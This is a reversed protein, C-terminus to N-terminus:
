RIWYDQRKCSPLDKRPLRSQIKDAAHKMGVDDEIGGRSSAARSAARSTVAWERRKSAPRTNSSHNTFLTPNPNPGATTLVRFAMCWRRPKREYRTGITFVNKLNSGGMKSTAAGPNRSRPYM